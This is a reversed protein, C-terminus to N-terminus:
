RGPQKAWRDQRSLSLVEKAVSHGEEKGILLRVFRDRQDPNRVRLALQVSRRVLEDAERDIQGGVLILVYGSEWESLTLVEREVAVDTQIDAVARCLVRVM